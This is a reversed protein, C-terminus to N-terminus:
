LQHQIRSLKYVDDSININLVFGDKMIIDILSDISRDFSAIIVEDSGRLGSPCTNAIQVRLATKMASFRKLHMIIGDAYAISDDELNVHLKRLIELMLSISKDIAPHDTDDRNLLGRLDILKGLQLLAQGQWAIKRARTM